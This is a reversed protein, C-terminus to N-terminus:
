RRHLFMGAQWWLWELSASKARLATGMLGGSLSDVVRGDGARKPKKTVMYCCLWDRRGLNDGRLDPMVRERRKGPGETSKL